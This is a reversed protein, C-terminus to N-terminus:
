NTEYNELARIAQAYEKAVDHAVLHVYLMTVEIDAHGMLKQVVPLSVKQAILNTCFTHRLLHPHARPVRRKRRHRFLTRLGAPTLPQGVSTGKLVVFCRNHKCDPREYDLYCQLLKRISLSMPIMREKEGKGRVRIQQAIFDIDYVELKLVECSRLGAFLMLAVLARDRYKIFGSLLTKTEQASLPIILQSPVKVAFANRKSKLRTPGFLAKNKRGKYFGPATAKFLRDGLGDYQANLFSRIVTIRRNITRPAAKAKRQAILFTTLHKTQLKEITLAEQRLFRYFCLLDFAYGRITQTALGRLHLLSLFDSVQAIPQENDILAFPTTNADPYV